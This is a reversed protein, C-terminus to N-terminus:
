TSGKLRDAWWTWTGARQPYAPSSCIVSRKKKEGLNVFEGLVHSSMVSDPMGFSSHWILFACHWMQTFLVLYAPCRSESSQYVLAQPQSSSRWSEALDLQKGLEKRCTHPLTTLNIAYTKNFNTIKKHTYSVRLIFHTQSFDFHIMAKLHLAGDQLKYRNPKALPLSIFWLHM